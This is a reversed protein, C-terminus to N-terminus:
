FRLAVWLAGHEARQRCVTQIASVDLSQGKAVDLKAHTKGVQAV